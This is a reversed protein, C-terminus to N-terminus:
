QNWGLRGNISISYTAIGTYMTIVSWLMESAFEALIIGVAVARLREYGRLGAYAQVAVKVILAVLLGFWYYDVGFNLSLAYGAPHLWFGPLRFRITDLLMVLAFGFLVAAIAAPNPGSASEVYHRITAGYGWKGLRNAHGKTYGEYIYALHSCLVGLILAIVVTWFVSRASLRVSDALKYGELHHPMNHTRHIRNMVSFLHYIRVTEAETLARSGAVAVLVQQPGMFAMEHSPPGVQARLRTLAVSFVLFIAIYVLVLLPSLGLAMGIACLAALTLALGVAASRPRLEDESFATGLRIHQWLQRLYGRASWMSGVFLGLFAGWTQESFYPPGPVLSSGGFLGQEYGWMAMLLQTVKRAFFFFVLSFLMDTPMFLGIASMYPFLGVPIWGLANWPPEQPLWKNLDSIFRVNIRPVAPYVFNVGNLLDISLMVVFATWLYRSKWIPQTPQTLYLPVQVIPFSLKEQRVWRERMLSNICLMSISLLVLVVTWGVIPKWWLHLHQVVFALNYGGVHYSRLRETDLLFFWESLYPIIHSRNWPYADTYLAYAPILLHVNHMWEAGIASAVSLFIYIQALEKSSLAFRAAWRRLLLNFFALAMLSCTPPVLLSFIVDVSVAAAWYVNAPLLVLAIVWTRLNGGAVRSDALAVGEHVVVSHRVSVTGM